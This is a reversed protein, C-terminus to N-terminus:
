ARMRINVSAPLGLRHSGEQYRKDMLLFTFEYRPSFDAVGFGFL